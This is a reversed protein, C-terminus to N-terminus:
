RRVGPLVLGLTLEALERDAGPRALRRASESMRSLAAPDGVLPLVRSRVTQASFDTDPIVIAAGTTVLSEANFRQEGNGVPLPVLVSPIGVCALEACTMAGARGVVLDAVSYALDMREIYPVVTIVSADAQAAVADVQERGAVLLVQVGMAALSGQAGLMANNLRRAGSSGGFVLVVPREDLAFMDRAQPRLAARELDQLASRMPMGVFQAGPLSTGPLGTVVLQAWRAGLRNALGPRVNAEHVVIPIGLRHAAWYAPASAYGGFGVVVDIDRERLIQEARDRASRLRPLVTFLDTAIRRPMVVKPVTALHYGRAPVLTAELGEATGLVTIECDIGTQQCVGHLADATALAPEVHGATGGGALLVRVAPM